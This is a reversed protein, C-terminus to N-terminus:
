LVLTYMNSCVSLSWVQIRASAGQPSIRTARVPLVHLNCCVVSMARWIGLDRASVHSWSEEPIPYRRSLM